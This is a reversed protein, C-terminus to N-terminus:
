GRGAEHVLEGAWWQVVSDLQLITQHLEHNVNKNSQVVPVSARELNMRRNREAAARKTTERVTM